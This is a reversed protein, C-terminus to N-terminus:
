DRPTWGRLLAAVTAQLETEFDLQLHGLGAEALAQAVRPPPRTTLGLGVVLAHLRVVFRLGDGEQLAPLRAELAAAPGALLRALRQKFDVIIDAALNQELVPHLLGLLRLLRPRPRLSRLVASAFQDAAREPESRSPPAQDLDALLASLWAELEDLVLALFIEEKTHFYLYITGKALGAQRALSDMTLDHLCGNRADFLTSAQALIEERRALKDEPARARRRAPREQVM